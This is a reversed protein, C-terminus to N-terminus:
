KVKTKFMTYINSFYAERELHTQWLKRNNKQMCEFDAKSIKQHFDMLTEVIKDEQAMVCHQAWNINQSLPLRFDTDVVLPIRGMALTEYFRVSFNGAGRLCFTYPNREINEFFEATTKNKQEETKAGARYQERLIFNTKVDLNKALLSLLQFRKSVSPFFLQYDTDVKKTWRKFNYAIFILYEKLKKSWANSAHGVFGIQPQTEKALPRFSQSLKTYPDIIFSPMIFTNANLKSDFGGLRFTYVANSSSKGYDGASYQWVKKGLDLARAVFSDFEQQKNNSHYYGIDVPVIAIDAEEITTVIQYKKLLNNNPLYWLDFLLPFVIKRNEATLYTRNTYLKLM